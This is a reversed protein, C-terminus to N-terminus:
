MLAPVPPLEFAPLGLLSTGSASRTAPPSCGPSCPAPSAIWCSLVAVPSFEEAGSLWATSM